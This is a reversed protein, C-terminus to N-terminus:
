IAYSPVFLFPLVGFLFAMSRGLFTLLVVPKKLTPQKAAIAIGALQFVESLRGIAAIISFQLSTAGLVHAMKTIFISGPTAISSFIQAFIGETISIKMNKQLSLRKM